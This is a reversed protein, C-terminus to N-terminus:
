KMNRAWNTPRIEFFLFGDSVMFHLSLLCIDRRAIKLLPMTLFPFVLKSVTLVLCPSSGSYLCETSQRLNWYLTPM